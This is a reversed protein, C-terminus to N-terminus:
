ISNSLEERHQAFYKARQMFEEWVEQPPFEDVFIAVSM